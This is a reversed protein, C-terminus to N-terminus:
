TSRKMRLRQSLATTIRRSSVSETFVGRGAPPWSGGSLLDDLRAPPATVFFEYKLQYHDVGVTRWIGYAPPVPPAADYNSSETVTGSDNFVYMFSLDKFPEFAGSEFLLQARWAGVLAPRMKPGCADTTAPQSHAATIRAAVALVVAIAVFIYSRKNM